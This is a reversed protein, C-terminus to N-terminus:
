DWAGEKSGKGRGVLVALLLEQTGLCSSSCRLVAPYPVCVCVCVLEIMEEVGYSM